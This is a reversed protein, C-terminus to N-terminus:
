KEIHSHISLGWVADSVFQNRGNAFPSRNNGGDRRRCLLDVHPVKVSEEEDGRRAHKLERHQRLVYEILDRDKEPFMSKLTDLAQNLSVTAAAMEPSLKFSPLHAFSWSNSQPFTCLNECYFSLNRHWIFICKNSLRLDTLSLWAYIHLSRTAGGAAWGGRKTSKVGSSARSTL